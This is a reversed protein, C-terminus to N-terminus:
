IVNFCILEIAQFLKARSRLWSLPLWSCVSLRHSGRRGVFHFLHFCSHPSFLFLTKDFSSIYNIPLSPSRPGPEILCSGHHKLTTFPVCFAFGFSMQQQSLLILFRNCVVSRECDRPNLSLREMFRVSHFLKLCYFSATYKNSKKPQSFFLKAPLINWIGYM